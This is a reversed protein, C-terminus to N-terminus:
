RIVLRSQKGEETRLVYNGPTLERVDLTATNRRKLILQGQMNFLSFNIPEDFQVQDSAPNPYLMLEDSSSNIENVGNILDNLYLIATDGNETTGGVFFIDQDEDGDFDAVVIGGDYLDPFASTDITSLIGAGNNLYLNTIASSGSNATWGRIIADPAGDNDLDEIVVKSYGVDIFDSPIIETFVGSGNNEFQAAVSSGVGLEGTIIIDLDGDDNMDHMATAGTQIDPLSHGFLETFVGNGDNTYVLTNESGGVLRNGTIVLDFDNDGDLDGFEVSSHYLGPFTNMTSPTFGANGDNLYLRTVPLGVPQRGTVLLDLDGDGDVDAYDSAGFLFGSISDTPSGSFTGTGDNLYLLSIRGSNETLGFCFIDLANDGNFDALHLDGNVAGEFTSATDLTFLGSGDNLYLQVLVGNGVQAGTTFLDIDGDNDMDGAAANALIMPVFPQNTSPIFRLQQAMGSAAFVCTFLITLSHKM